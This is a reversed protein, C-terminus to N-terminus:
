DVPGDSHAMAFNSPAESACCFLLAPYRHVVLPTLAFDFIFESNTKPRVADALSGDSGEAGFRATKGVGHSRPGRRRDHDSEKPETRM